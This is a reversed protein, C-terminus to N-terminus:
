DDGGRKGDRERDGDGKGDGFWDKRRKERRDGKTLARELRDAFAARAEPGLAKLYDALVARGGELLAANRAAIAAFAADLASPDFPEARLAQLLAGFDGRLAERGARAEPFAASFADRLAARDERDLADALPGLGFDRDDRGPAGGRLFAGGIMGLIVLNLALSLALLAKVWGRTRTEAPAPPPPSPADSM